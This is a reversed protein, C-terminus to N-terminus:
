RSLLCNSSGFTSCSLLSSCLHPLKVISFLSVKKISDEDMLSYDLPTSCGLRTLVEELFEDDSSGRRSSGLAKSAEEAANLMADSQVRKLTGPKVGKDTDEFAKPDDVAEDNSGDTIATLPSTELSPLGTLSTSLPSASLDLSM